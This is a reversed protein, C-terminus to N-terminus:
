QGNSEEREREMRAIFEDAIARREEVGRDHIDRYIDGATAYDWLWAIVVGLFVFSGILLVADIM